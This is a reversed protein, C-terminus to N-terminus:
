GRGGCWKEKGGKGYGNGYGEDHGSMAPSIEKEAEGPSSM